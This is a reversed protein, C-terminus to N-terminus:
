GASNVAALQAAATHSVILLLLGNAGKEWCMHLSLLVTSPVNDGRTLTWVATGPRKGPFRGQDGDCNVGGTM